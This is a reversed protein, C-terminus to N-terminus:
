MKEPAFIGLLELGTKLIEKAGFVINLRGERENEQSKLVPLTEYFINITNSLEYLYDALQNPSYNESISQLVEDFRLITLIIERELPHNIITPLNKKKFKAKRLISSLRAHTYQIYPASFGKLNLMRDWEFIIDALRNHSLDFFKVAGIGVEKAINEKEPETLSPNLKDVVKKARSVAEKLVEEMPILRGERTAFKKGGPGLMMGFKIHVLQELKAIGLRHAVGFVQNLHFTQQNAAVYLLKTAHWKKLRHRIAALERTTYITAGDSKQIIEPTPSGPILVVISNDEGREAIGRGLADNVLSELEPEYFSEGITNEIKVDLLKYVRNFDRLSEESFRKWLKKNESDGEELKKFERRGEEILKPNEKAAQSFRVYLNLMESIPNEKLKEKDGWKKYAAILLGFQTGWDGPFSLSIVKHGIFRLINVLTQGIITSRLHHIGLPKAINPSSYEIVFVERKAPKIQFAKVGKKIIESFLKELEKGSIWFNIFGPKAVEVKELIKGVGYRVQEPAPYRTDQIKYKLKEAIEIPNQKLIKGIIMAINTAYDGYSKNKPSGIKIEPIEFQPFVKEKQLEKIAKEILNKTEQCIMMILKVKNKDSIFPDESFSKGKM